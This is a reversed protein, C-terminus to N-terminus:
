VAAIRKKFIEAIHEDGKYVYYRGATNREAHGLYEGAEENSGGRKIINTATTKRLLHPYVNINMEARKGVSKISYYIGGSGLSKGNRTSVFLAETSDNEIGREKIYKLLFKKAVRDICVMRYRNTKQGFICLKGETWDIDCIRVNPLEGNRMATCRLFEILARDRTNSCGTKLQEWQEPELHEIQKQTEKYNDINEVPNESILKSKRMWTFFASLFRKCNNVTRNSNGRNKYELLFYEIDNENIQTFPKQLMDALLRVHRIYQIVTNESLRAAKKSHFLELIYSNIDYNASTEVSERTIQVGSLNQILVERLIGLEQAPLHVKMQQVINNIVNITKNM